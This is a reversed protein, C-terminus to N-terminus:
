GTPIILVSSSFPFLPEYEEAKELKYQSMAPLQHRSIDVDEVMGAKSFCGFRPQWFDRPARRFSFADALKVVLAAKARKQAPEQSQLIEREKPSFMKELPDVLPATISMKGLVLV